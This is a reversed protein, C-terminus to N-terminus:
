HSESLQREYDDKSKLTELEAANSMRVKILWGAGFPDAKMDAFENADVGDHVEIVEGSIPAYLDSVAKVSEIEGFSEGKSIADGVSPLDVYTLDNLQEIAFDSIGIIAVDGDVQVWEHSDLFRCTNPREM